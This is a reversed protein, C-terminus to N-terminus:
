WKKRIKKKKKEKKTYKRNIRWGKKKRMNEEEKTKGTM